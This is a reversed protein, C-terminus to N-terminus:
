QRNQGLYYATLNIDTSGSIVSPRLRVYTVPKGSVHFMSKKDEREQANYSHAGLIFYDNNDLSGEIIITIADVSSGQVVSQVTHGSIAQGDVFGIASSASTATTADLLKYPM